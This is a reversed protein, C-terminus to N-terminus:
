KLIQTQKHTSLKAANHQVFYEEGFRDVQTDIRNKVVETM